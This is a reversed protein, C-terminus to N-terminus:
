EKFKFSLVLHQNQNQDSTITSFKSLQTEIVSTKNLQIKSPIFKGFNPDGHNTNKKKKIYSPKNQHFQNRQLQTEM